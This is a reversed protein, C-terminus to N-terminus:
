PIEVRKSVEALKKDVLELVFERDKLNNVIDLNDMDLVLVESMNYHNEIWDDYDKWIFYYYEKLTDDVEYGRGRQNIRKMATEFSVKLYIMLDPNKKPMGEIEELMNDLLGMYLNFETESIDGLEMNKRAFLIDEYISRDLINNNNSLARKISKFRTNLFYLQLLFPYRKKAKEEKTASYFKELFPNDDVSEYYVESNLHEGIMQAISTKGAGIFGSITIVSM